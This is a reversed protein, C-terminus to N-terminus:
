RRRGGHGPARGLATDGDAVGLRARSNAVSRDTGVARRGDSYLGQPHDAFYGQSQSAGSLRAGTTATSDGAPAPARATKPKGRAEGEGRTKNRRQEAPAEAGTNGGLPTGM